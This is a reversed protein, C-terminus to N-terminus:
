KNIIEVMDTDVDSYFVELGYEYKDIRYFLGDKKFM